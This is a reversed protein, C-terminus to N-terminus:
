EEGSGLPVITGEQAGYGAGTLGGEVVGVARCFSRGVSVNTRSELLKRCNSAGVLKVM